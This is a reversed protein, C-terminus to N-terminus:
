WYNSSNRVRPRERLGNFMNIETYQHLIPNGNCSTRSM